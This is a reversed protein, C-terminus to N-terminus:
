TPAYEDHRRWWAAGFPLDAENRGAPALDLYQYTGMLTEVGRGYTSYTHHVAGNQIAFASLGERQPGVDDVREFNYEAGHSRQEDSFAVGFDYHFDSGLSSVWPFEWGMRRKYAQLRELPAMSSCVLTVDHGGLHPLVADFHDAVFSCGTCGEAEDEVRLGVGFMFHYVLLQSRGAFLAALTRTGEDTEFRYEKEVPVWPLRARIRSIEDGQRSHEKERQLLEKRAALWEERTGITHEPMSRERM